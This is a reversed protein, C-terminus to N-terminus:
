TVSLYFLIYRPLLCIFWTEGQKPLFFIKDQRKGYVDHKIESFGSFITGPKLSNKRRDLILGGSEIVLVKWTWKVVPNQEYM